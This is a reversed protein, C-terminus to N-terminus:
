TYQGHINDTSGHKKQLNIKNCPVLMNVRAHISHDFLKFHKFM